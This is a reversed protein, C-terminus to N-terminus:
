VIKAPKMIALGELALKHGATVDGCCRFPGCLAGFRLVLEMLKRKSLKWLDAGRPDGAFADLATARVQSRQVHISM